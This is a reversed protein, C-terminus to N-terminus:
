ISIEKEEVVITEV